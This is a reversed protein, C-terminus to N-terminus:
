FITDEQCENPPFLTITSWRRRSHYHPLPSPGITQRWQSPGRTPRLVLWENPHCTLLWLMPRLNPFRNSILLLNFFFSPIVRLWRNALIASNHWWYEKEIIVSSTRTRWWRCSWIKALPSYTLLAGTVTALVQIADELITSWYWSKKWSNSAEMM